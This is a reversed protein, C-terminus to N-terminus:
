PKEPPALARPPPAPARAFLRALAEAHLPLQVVSAGGIPRVLGHADADYPRAGAVPHGAARDDLTRSSRASGARTTPGQAGRAAPPVRRPARTSTCTPHGM